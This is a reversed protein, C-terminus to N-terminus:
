GRGPSRHHPVRALHARTALHLSGCFCPFGRPGGAGAGPRRSGRGRRLFVCLEGLLSRCVRSEWAQPCWAPSLLRPRTPSPTRGAPGRGDATEWALMLLRTVKSPRPGCRLTAPTQPADQRCLAGLLGEGHGASRMQPPTSPVPRHGSGLSPSEVPAAQCSGQGKSLPGLM